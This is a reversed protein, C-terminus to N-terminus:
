KKEDVHVWFTARQRLFGENTGVKRKQNEKLFSVYGATMSWWGAEPFAFTVVGKADTKARFTIFEDSPMVKPPSANYREIEVLSGQAPGYFVSKSSAGAPHEFAMQFSMNPWIGYPRTLPIVRLESDPFDKPQRADWNKQSQVHLVVKVTDQVFEKSEEMWIPPTLLMFTYDGRMSPEYDFQFTTVNKKDVGPVARRTLKDIKQATKDPLIVVIERPEPADFLEHEFPHGFQYTFTVREGKNAWAKDPLLMNYHAKCLSAFGLIVLFAVALRRM